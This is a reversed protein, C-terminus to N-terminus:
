RLPKCEDSVNTRQAIRLLFKRLPQSLDRTHAESQPTFVRDCGIDALRELAGCGRRQDYEIRLKIRQAATFRSGFGCENPAGAGDEAGREVREARCDCAAFANARCRKGSFASSVVLACLVYARQCAPAVAARRLREFRSLIRMDIREEGTEGHTEGAIPGFSHDGPRCFWMSREAFGFGGKRAQEFQETGACQRRGFDPFREFHHWAVPHM